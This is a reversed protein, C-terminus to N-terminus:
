ASASCVGWVHEPKSMGKAHTLSRPCMIWCQTQTGDSGCVRRTGLAGKGPKPTVRAQTDEFSVESPTVGREDSM